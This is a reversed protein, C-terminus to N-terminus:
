TKAIESMLNLIAARQEASSIARFTKLLDREMHDMAMNRSASDSQEVGALQLLETASVDLATAILVLTAASIRNAGREYKQVQQFSVGIRKGLETQSLSRGVRLTRIQSGLQADIDTTARLRGGSALAEESLGSRHDSQVM